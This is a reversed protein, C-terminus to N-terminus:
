DLRIKKERGKREGRKREKGEGRDQNVRSRSGPCPERHTWLDNRLDVRPMKKRVKKIRRSINRRINRGPKEGSISLGIKSFFVINSSQNWQPLFSERASFCCRRWNPKLTTASITSLEL